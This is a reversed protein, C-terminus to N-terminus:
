GAAGRLVAAVVSATVFMADGLVFPLADKRALRILVAGSMLLAFGIAAAVGLPAVAFGIVLGVVGAAEPIGILRYRDWPIRLREATAVQSKIARLKGLSGGLFVFILVGALVDAAILM